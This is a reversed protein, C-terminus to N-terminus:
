KVLGEVIKEYRDLLNVSNGGGFKEQLQIAQFIAEKEESTPVVEEVVEEILNTLQTM